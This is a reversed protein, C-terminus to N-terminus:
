RGGRTGGKMQYFGLGAGGQGGALAPLADDVGDTGVGLGNPFAPGPLFTGPKEAVHPRVPVVMAVAVGKSLVVLPAQPLAAKVLGAVQRMCAADAVSSGGFKLVIM